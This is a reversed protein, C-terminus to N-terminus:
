LVLRWPVVDHVWACMKGPLQPPPVGALAEWSPLGGLRNPGPDINYDSGERGNERPNAGARLTPYAGHIMRMMV